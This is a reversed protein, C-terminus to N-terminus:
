GAKAARRRRCLLTAAVGTAVSAAAGPEPILVAEGNLIVNDIRLSNDPNDAATGWDYLYIRFTVEGALDQYQSGTLAATLTRFNTNNPSNFTGTAINSAYSDLSSRVAWGGLYNTTASRAGEFTLSALNLKYGSAPAVSFTVYSHGSVADAETSPMASARGFFSPVPNGVGTSLGTRTRPTAESTMGILAQGASFLGANSNPETDVSSATVSTTATAETTTGADFPYSAIVAAQSQTCLMAGLVSGALLAPVQGLRCRYSTLRQM